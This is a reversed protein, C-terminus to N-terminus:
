YEQSANRRGELEFDEDLLRYRRFQNYERFEPQNFPQVSFHIHSERGLSNLDDFFCVLREYWTMPLYRLHNGNRLLNRIKRIFFLTNELSGLTLRIPHNRRHFLRYENTEEELLEKLIKLYLKLKTQFSDDKIYNLHEQIRFHRAMTANDLSLLENGSYFFTLIDLHVCAYQFQAMLRLLNEFCEKISNRMQDQHQDIIIQLLDYAPRRRNIEQNEEQDSDSAPSTSGSSSSSSSDNDNNSTQNTTPYDQDEEEVEVVKPKLAFPNSGQGQDYSHNSKFRKPQNKEPDSDSDTTTRYRNNGCQPDNCGDIVVVGDVTKVMKTQKM